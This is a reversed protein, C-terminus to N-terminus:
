PAVTRRVLEILRGTREDLERVADPGDRQAGEILQPLGSAISAEVEACTAARGEAWWEMSEAAGFEFLMGGDHSRFPRYSRTTWLLAVGPNRLIFTGGPNHKEEPMGAERRKAHPKTLFPCAQVAYRACDLHSPPEASTHTIACMPGLVFARFAGLPNGCLWCLNQQMCARVARPEVLRHDPEGNVIAVFFPVPYGRKDIPLRAMHRPLPPLTPRLENTM